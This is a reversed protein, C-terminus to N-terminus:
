CAMGELNAWANQEIAKREERMRKMEDQIPDYFASAMGIPAVITYAVKPIRFREFFKCGPCWTQYETYYATEIRRQQNITSCCPCIRQSGYTLGVNEVM